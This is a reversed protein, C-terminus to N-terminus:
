RGSGSTLEVPPREPETAKQLEKCDDRPIQLQTGMQLDATNVQRFTRTRTESLPLKMALAYISITKEQRVDGSIRETRNPHVHTSSVSTCSCRTINISDTTSGM